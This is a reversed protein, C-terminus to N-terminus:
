RYIRSDVFSLEYRPNLVRLAYAVVRRQSAPKDDISVIHCTGSPVIKKWRAEAHCLLNEAIDAPVACALHFHPEGAATQHSAGFYEFRESEPIRTVNQGHLPRLMEVRLRKLRQHATPISLDRHTNLTVWHTRHHRSAFEILAERIQHRDTAPNITDMIPKLV